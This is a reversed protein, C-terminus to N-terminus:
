TQSVIGGKKFTPIHKKVFYVSETNKYMLKIADGNEAAADWLQNICVAVRICLIICAAATIMFHGLVQGDHETLGAMFIYLDNIKMGAFPFNNKRCEKGVFRQFAYM